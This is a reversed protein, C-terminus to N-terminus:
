PKTGVEFVAQVLSPGSGPSFQWQSSMALGIFQQVLEEAKEGSLTSENELVMRILGDPETRFGLAFTGSVAAGRDALLQQLHRAGQELSDRAAEESVAGQVQFQQLAIRGTGEGIVFIENKTRPLFRSLVKSFFSAMYEGTKM